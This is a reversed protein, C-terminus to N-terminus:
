NFEDYEYEAVVNFRYWYSEDSLDVIRVNRFWVGGITKTGRYANKAVMALKRGIDKSNVASMPCFLQVFVLGQATYVQGGPKIECNSLASQGEIVNQVSHRCWFVDGPLKAGKENGDWRIEPVYGAFTASNALWAVNFLGSIEDVAAPYDIM